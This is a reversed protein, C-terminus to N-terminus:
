PELGPWMVDLLGRVFRAPDVVERGLAPLMQERHIYHTVAGMLALSCLVVQLGGMGVITRRLRWLLAPELELGILFMMMVVGFEAFHMTSTVRDIFGLGSPGILIGAILYGLVAGLKFRAALPVVLCAAALFVFVNLLLGTDM